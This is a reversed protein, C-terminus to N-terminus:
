CIIGKICKQYLKQYNKQTKEISFLSEARKRCHLPNISKIQDIASKMVEISDCVLGTEGHAIIESMAGRNSAIVPTGSAMAEAVTLGFPEEWRIPVLLAKANALLTKKREGEVRGVTKIKNSLPLWTHPHKFKRGGAIILNESKSRAIQIADGVGKKSRSVKALFLLYESKNSTAQYENLPIGNYVFINGKHLEMHRQSLYVRNVRDHQIKKNGHVTEIIPLGNKAIIKLHNDFGGHHHVIDTKSPIKKLLEKSTIGTPVEIHNFYATSIGSPSLILVNNGADFQAKALWDVMRNSGGSGLSPPVSKEILHVININSEIM